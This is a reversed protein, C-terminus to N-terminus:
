LCRYHGRSYEMPDTVLILNSNFSNAVLLGNEFPHFHTFDLSALVVEGFGIKLTSSNHRHELATCNKGLSFDLYPAPARRPHSDVYNLRPTLVDRLSLLM